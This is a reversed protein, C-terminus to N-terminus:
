ILGSVVRVRHVGALSRAEVTEPVSNLWVMGLGGNGRTVFNNRFPSPSGHSTFMLDVVPASTRYTMLGDEAFSVVIEAAPPLRLHKPEGILTWADPADLSGALILTTATNLGAIDFEGIAVSGYTPYTGEFTEERHVEGTSLDVAYLTIETEYGSDGHQVLHVIVKDLQRELSVLRSDYLRELEYALAKPDGQSDLIAWSQTPWIDNLQWILSGDCFPARRYHEVGHRLADRQNLQSYYVWDALTVPDPYHLKVFGTFTDADKGTKDHWRIVASYPTEHDADTIFERWTALSCSSGFGYESSFRGKSDSYYIWDGRGHWVDWNHQDGYWDANPGRRKDNDPTEEEPQGIPSSPIYSRGPDFEAVVAPLTETYLPLGYYRPPTRDGGWRNYFMEDNENNGCWLALCPYNRLREINVRAEERLVEQAAPDDPYYACAFPFDQWVLIGLESCLRYFEDSEYLGGGWVRLMNFGMQKAQQLRTRLESDPIVSPFSYDPIWNAGRAWIREGNHVFYFAQGHEDKPLELKTQSFGVQNVVFADEGISSMIPYTVPHDPHWRTIGRLLYEGDPEEDSLGFATLNHRIEGAGTQRSTIRVTAENESLSLIQWWVNDIRADFEDLYVNQWIGASILRPGWDWGYMCQVKRVFSREEFRDVDDPLSEKAFYAARREAGVTLAARFDVRLENEGTRLKGAVDIERPVFMNDHEAIIEGNLRITCVTDLGEFRLRAFTHGSPEYHFTTRYSWDEQDVWQAGIENMNEHPDPLIGNAMLDLHVHGPVNAPLWPMPSYGYRQSEYRTQIFEWGEHLYRRIM